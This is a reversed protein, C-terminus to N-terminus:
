RRLGQTIGKWSAFLQDWSPPTTMNDKPAAGIYKAAQYAPEVLYMLSARLPDTLAMERYYAQHEYPAIYAQMEPNGAYKQRLAYLEQWNKDGLEM